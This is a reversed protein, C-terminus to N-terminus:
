AGAARKAEGPEGMATDGYYGLAARSRKRAPWIGILTGMVTILGGGWVWSVLPNLHIDVSLVDRQAGALYVYVDELFTSRIAVRTHRQENPVTFFRFEPYMRAVAKGDRQLLLQAQLYDYNDIRGETSGEYTFSYPGVQVAEGLVLDAEAKQNYVSGAFGAFAIVIGVHVVYGGWRRRSRTVVRYGATAPNERAMMMRTKLARYFEMLIGALVGVGAAWIILAEPRTVKMAILLWAAGLTAAGLPIIFNRKFNHVTAKRWAILPGIGMLVILTVGVPIMIRLFFPASVSIKEGTAAESLIPFLTGWLVAFAGCVLVLNNLLFAAERSMLSQLREKSRLVPARYAVLGLSVVTSVVIFGLFYRGIPGEAFSHVSTIVGSRTLFTANITLLWTFIVLMMNWM